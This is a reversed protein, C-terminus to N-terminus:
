YPRTPESIHILSLKERLGSENLYLKTQSLVGALNQVLNLSELEQKDEGSIRVNVGQSPGVSQAYRLVSPSIISNKPM